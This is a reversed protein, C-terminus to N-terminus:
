FSVSLCKLCTTPYGCVLRIREIDDPPIKKGNIIIPQGLEYQKLFREKLEQEPLDVKTKDRARSSKQSIRIHYYM